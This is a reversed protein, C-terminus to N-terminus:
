LSNSKLTATNKPRFAKARYAIATGDDKISM